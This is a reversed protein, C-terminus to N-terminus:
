APTYGEVSGGEMSSPSPERQTLDIDMANASVYAPAVRESGGGNGHSLPELGMGETDNEEEPTGRRGKFMFMVAEGLGRVIDGPSAAAIFAKIGLPGGYYRVDDKGDALQNNDDAYYPKASYAYFQFLAFAVMEGCILISPIGYNIDNYSLRASPNVAGTSRLITFIISQLFTLFVIGKIAALKTLPKHPKLETKTRKYFVLLRLFAVSVSLSVIVTLQQNKM